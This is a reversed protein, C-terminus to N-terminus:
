AWYRNIWLGYLSELVQLWINLTFFHLSPASIFCLIFKAPLQLFIIQISNSLRPATHFFPFIYLNTSHYWRGIIYPYWIREAITCPEPVHGIVFARSLFFSSSFFRISLHIYPNVLLFSYVLPVETSPDRPLLNLFASHSRGWPIISIYRSPTFFRLLLSLFISVSASRLVIYLRFPDFLSSVRSLFSYWLLILNPFASGLMAFSFFFIIKTSPYVFEVM